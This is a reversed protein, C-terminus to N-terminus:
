VVRDRHHRRAGTTKVNRTAADLLFVFLLVLMDRRTRTRTETSSRVHEEEKERGHWTGRCGRARHRERRWGVTVVSRAMERDEQSEGIRSWKV